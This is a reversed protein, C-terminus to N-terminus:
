SGKQNRGDPEGFRAPLTYTVGCIWNSGHNALKLADDSRNPNM